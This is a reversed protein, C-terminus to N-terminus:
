TKYRISIIIVSINTSYGSSRRPIVSVFSYTSCICYSHTHVILDRNQFRKQYYLSSTKQKLNQWPRMQHSNCRLPLISIPVFPVFRTETYLLLMLVFWSSTNPFIVIPMLEVAKGISGSPVVDLVRPFPMLM